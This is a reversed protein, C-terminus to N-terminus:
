VKITHYIQNKILSLHNRLAKEDKEKIMEKPFLSSGMGVGTAGAAFFDSINEKTVGGTPLVKITNLPALVDKIYQFGFQSCPFIKVASAGAEWATYIETPTLAGSFVPVELSKCKAIVEVNVIPTVIFQVGAMLAKELDDMSCVTGAGVNLSPYDDRLQAILQTAGETNMTIELSSYGSSIYIPVIFDVEEQSVNRLIGVVPTEEFAEWSFAKNNQM